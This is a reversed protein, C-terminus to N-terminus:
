FRNGKGLYKNQILFKVLENGFLVYKVPVDEESFVDDSEVNVSLENDYWTEGDISQARGDNKITEFMIEPDPEVILLLGHQYIDNETISHLSKGLKESIQFEMATLAHGLDEEKALFVLEKLLDEYEGYFNETMRGISPILGIENISQLNDIITGHYLRPSDDQEDYYVSDNFKEKELFDFQQATKIKQLNFSQKIIQEPHFVIYVTHVMTQDFSSDTMQVGDYGMEELKKLIDNQWFWDNLGWSDYENILEEPTKDANKPIEISYIIQKLFEPDDLNALNNIQLDYSNVNKGFDKAREDSISFWYGYTNGSQFENFEIPSGHYVNKVLMAQKLKKATKIKKLNLATKWSTFYWFQYEQTADFVNQSIEEDEWDVIFGNENVKYYLDADIFTAQNLPIWEQHWFVEILNPPINNETYYDFHSDKDLEFEEQKPIRLLIPIPSYRNNKLNQRFKVSAYYLAIESNESVMIKNMSFEGLSGGWYPNDSVVLGSSIISPICDALTGHYFFSSQQAQKYNKINFGAYNNKARSLYEAAWPEHQYYKLLSEPVRRGNDLRLKLINILVESENPNGFYLIDDVPVTYSVVRANKVGRIHEKAIREDLSFSFVTRSASMKPFIEEGRFVKVYDGFKARLFERQKETEQNLKERLEKNRFIKELEKGQPDFLLGIHSSLRNSVNGYQNASEESIQALEKLTMQNPPLEYNTKRYQVGDFVYDYEKLGGRIIEDVLAANVPLGQRIAKLIESWQAGKKRGSGIWEDPSMMWPDKDNEIKNNTIIDGTYYDDNMNAYKKLSFSKRALQIINAPISNRTFYSRVPADDSGAMDNELNNLVNKPIKLVVLEEEERGQHELHAYIREKWYEVGGLETLFIKGRSYDSYWSGEAMSQKSPRPNLGNQLINDLNEYTTIHYLFEDEKNKEAIERWKRKDRSLFEELIDNPVNENRDIARRIHGWWAETLDNETKDGGPYTDIFEERSMMWPEKSAYKNARFNNELKKLGFQYSFEEYSTELGIYGIFKGSRFIDEGDAGVQLEYNQSSFVAVKDTAGESILNSIAKEFTPKDWVAFSSLGLEPDACWKKNWPDQRPESLAGHTKQWEKADELNEFWGDIHCSFGRQLDAEPNNTERLFLLEKNAYKKQTLFNHAFNTKVKFPIKPDNYDVTFEQGKEIERVVIFVFGGLTEQIKLNPNNSHNVYKAMESLEYDKDDDGTNNIKEFALGINEKPSFKRAAFAGKGSINSNKIEYVNFESHSEVQGPQSGIYYDDNMNAYKKQASFNHAIKLKLRAEKMTLVRINRLVSPSDNILPIEFESEYNGIDSFDFYNIVAEELSINKGDTEAELIFNSGNHSGFEIAANLDWTWSIGLMEMDIDNVSKARIARYIKLPNPLGEFIDIVEQVYNLADQESNFRYEEENKAEQSYGPYLDYYADHEIHQFAWDGAGFDLRIAKKIQSSLNFAFQDINNKNIKIIEIIDAAMPVMNSPWFGKTMKDPEVAVKLLYMPKYEEGYKTWIYQVPYKPINSFLTGIYFSGSMQIKELNRTAHYLIPKGEPTLEVKMMDVWEMFYQTREEQTPESAKKIKRSLNFANKIQGVFEVANGSFIRYEAEAPFYEGLTNSKARYELISVQEPDLKLFANDDHFGFWAYIPGGAEQRRIAFCSYFSMRYRTLEEETLDRLYYHSFKIGNAGEWSGIDDPILYGKAILDEVKEGLGETSSLHKGQAFYKYPGCSSEFCSILKNEYPRQADIGKRAMDLLEEITLQGRVVKIGEYITRRISEAIKFDETMSVAHSYGGGLGPGGELGLENRTKLGEQMVKDTAITVHYLKQPLPKFNNWNVLSGRMHPDKKVVEPELKGESIQRLIIQQWENEKKRLRQRADYWEDTKGQAEIEEIKELLIPELPGNWEEFSLYPKKFVKSNNLIHKIGFHLESPLENMPFWQRDVNEDDSFSITPTWKEKEELSINYVFTKYIFSGSRYEITDLLEMNAPLSGAEQETERQANELFIQEDPSEEGHEDSYFGGGIAGGTNGWTGPEEVWQARKFLLATQDELCIILIGSAFKGWFTPFAYKSINFKKRM